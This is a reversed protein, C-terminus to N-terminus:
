GTDLIKNVGAPGEEEQQRLDELLLRRGTGCVRNKVKPSLDNLAMGRGRDKTIAERESSEFRFQLIKKKIKKWM